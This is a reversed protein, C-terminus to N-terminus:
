VVIQGGMQAGLKRGLADGDDIPIHQLVIKCSGRGGGALGQEDEAVQGVADGRLDEELECGAMGREVPGYQHNLAFHGIADGGRGARAVVAQERHGHLHVAGRFFEKGQRRFGERGRRVHVGGDEAPSNGRAEHFEAQVFGAEQGEHAFGERLLALSEGVIEAGSAYGGSSGGGSQRLGCDSGLGAGFGQGDFGQCGEPVAKLINRGAFLCLRASVRSIDRM